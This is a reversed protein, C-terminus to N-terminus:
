GLGASAAWAHYRSVANNVRSRSLSLDDALARYSIRGGTADYSVAQAVAEDGVVGLARRMPLALARAQRAREIPALKRLARLQAILQDLEDLAPARSM